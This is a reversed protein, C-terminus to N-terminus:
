PEPNLTKPILNPNSFNVTQPKPNLTFKSDAHTTTSLLHIHTHTYVYIHLCMYVYVLFYIYTITYIHITTRVHICVHVSMHICVNCVYVDCIHSYM